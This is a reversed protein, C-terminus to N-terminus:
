KGGNNKPIACIFIFLGVVIFNLSEIWISVNQQVNKKWLYSKKKFSTKCFPRSFTYALVFVINVMKAKYHSMKIMM